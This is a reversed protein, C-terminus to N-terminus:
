GSARRRALRGTAGGSARPPANDSPNEAFTSKTVLKTVLERHQTARQREDRHQTARQPEGAGRRHSWRERGLQRKRRRSWALVAPALAWGLAGFGLGWAVAGGFLVGVALLAGAWSRTLAMALLVGLAAGAAIMAVPGLFLAAAAALGLVAAAAVGLRPRRWLLV